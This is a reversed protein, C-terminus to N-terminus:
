MLRIWEVIIYFYFYILFAEVCWVGGGGGRARGGGDTMKALMNTVKSHKSAIGTMIIIMIFFRAFTITLIM